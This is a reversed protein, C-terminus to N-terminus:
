MNSFSTDFYYTYALNNTRQKFLVGLTGRPVNPTKYKIIDGKIINDDFAM